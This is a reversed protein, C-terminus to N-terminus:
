LRRIKRGGIAYALFAVAPKVAVIYHVNGVTPTQAGIAKSFFDVIQRSFFKGLKDACLNYVCLVCPLYM